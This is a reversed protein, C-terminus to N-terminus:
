KPKPDKPPPPPPPPPDPGFIDKQGEGAKRASADCHARARGHRAKADNRCQRLRGFLGRLNQECSKINAQYDRAAEKKCAAATDDASALSV